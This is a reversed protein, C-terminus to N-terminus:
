VTITEGTSLYRLKPMKTRLFGYQEVGTCHGTIYECSHRNLFAAAEALRKKGSTALPIKFFHFGGILVDPQLWSVLNMVGKHSCGSIVIRREGECIVLYQEHRFTEAIVNEQSGGRSLCPTVESTLSRGLAPGQQNPTFQQEACQSFSAQGDEPCLMTSSMPLYSLGFSDISVVPTCENCSRLECADNIPLEEGVLRIREKYQDLLQPSIGIEEGQRNFHPEFAYRSLYVPATRNISLFASLGGGHDYHGHSLVAFDVAELSIGLKNANQMFADSAGMDFLINYNETEVYLSLAHESLLSEHSTTNEVLATIKM